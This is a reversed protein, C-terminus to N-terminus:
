SDKQKMGMSEMPTSTSYTVQSSICPREDTVTYSRFAHPSLFFGLNFPANFDNNFALWSFIPEGIHPLLRCSTSLTPPQRVPLHLFAWYRQPSFSSRSTNFVWQVVKRGCADVGGRYLGYFQIACGFDFLLDHDNPLRCM